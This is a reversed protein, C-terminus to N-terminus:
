PGALFAMNFLLALSIWVASWCLAEKVRVVHAHRHFVGLDLALMGLVFVGLRGVLTAPEMLHGQQNDSISLLLVSRGALKALACHMANLISARSWSPGHSASARHARRHISTSFLRVLGGGSFPNIIFLHATAPSGAMMPIQRSWAEIKQLASALGLPNGSLQAGREDASFERSRSIAMQILTAALPALM